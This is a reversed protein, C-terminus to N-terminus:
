VRIWNPCEEGSRTGSTM